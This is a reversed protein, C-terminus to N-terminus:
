MSIYVHVICIACLEPSKKSNIIFDTHECNLFTKKNNQLQDQQETANWKQPPHRSDQNGLKSVCSIILDTFHFFISELVIVHLSVHLLCKRLRFEVSQEYMYM